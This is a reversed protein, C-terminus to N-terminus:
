LMKNQDTFQLNNSALKKNFSKLLGVGTSLDTSLLLYSKIGINEPDQWDFCIFEVNDVLSTFISYYYTNLKYYGALVNTCSTCHIVM